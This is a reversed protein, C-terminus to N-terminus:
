NAHTGPEDLPTFEYTTFVLDTKPLKLDKIEFSGIDYSLTVHPNYKEFDYVAGYKNMITEHHATLDKSNLKAVLCNKGDPTNFVKLGGVKANIPLNMDYHKASPIGKRSYIVTCHFDDQKLANPIKNTKNWDDLVQASEKDPKVSLYSGYKHEKDEEIIFDKFSMMDKKRNIIDMVM